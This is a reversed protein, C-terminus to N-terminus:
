FCGTDPPCTKIGGTGSGRALMLAPMKLDVPRDLNDIEATTTVFSVTLKNNYNPQSLKVINADYVGLYVRLGDCGPHAAFLADLKAKDIYVAKTDKTPDLKRFNGDDMILLREFMNQSLASIQEYTLKDDPSLPSENENPTSM